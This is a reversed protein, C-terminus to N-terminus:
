GKSCYKLVGNQSKGIVELEVAKDKKIQWVHELYECGIIVKSMYHVKRFTLLKISNLKEVANTRNKKNDPMRRMMKNDRKAM